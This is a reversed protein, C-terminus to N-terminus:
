CIPGVSARRSCASLPWDGRSLATCAQVAACHGTRHKAACSCPGPRRPPGDTACTILCRTRLNVCCRCHRSRVLRRTRRIELRDHRWDIDSLHLGIVEGARLGYTTLLMWIAYDRRGLPSRDQKLAELARQIDELRITSPIDKLAYIKPGKIASALDLPLHGSGHLYRLLSRLVAVMEAISTRRMSAGCWAIYADLDAVTLGGITKDQDDLWEILRYAEARRRRRTSPSLGRLDKMWADFDTVMVRAAISHATTPPVVPSWEGHVLRLLMRIAARHSRRTGDSFLSRRREAGLTSLYSDVDAASVSEVTQGRLELDRLFRRVAFPYNRVVGQSYSEERLYEQFRSLWVDCQPESQSM